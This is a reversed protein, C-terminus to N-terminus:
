LKSDDLLGKDQDASAANMSAPLAAAKQGVTPIPPPAQMASDGVLTPTVFVVISNRTNKQIKHSFLYGLLPISMLGPVGTRTWEKENQVLGALTLTSGPTLSLESSVHRNRLGPVSNGSLTVSNQTDLGSVGADVNMAINGNDELHPNIKLDVGYEKFEVSVSGLSSSTAYPLEGGAHFTATTGDKTILKPNALLDAAGDQVLADIDAFLQSRTLAGMTLVSPVSAEEIHITNFWSIGFQLSRNEDVDVVEVAIQILPKDKGAAARAPAATLLNSVLLVSLLSALTKMAM